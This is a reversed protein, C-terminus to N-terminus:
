PRDQVGACPGQRLPYEEARAQQARYDRPSLGHAAKFLRSFHAPDPYGWRAGIAAVPRAAFRYDLLDRRCHELRRERIWGSVTTGQAHFLKHLQRTSVHHAAAIQGPVLDAQGLHQEVYATIRLMLARHTSAADAPVCDLREALVTGLLDLVNDALRVGARTDVSDLVSAVQVLFPRVLAGLGAAGPVRTATLRAVQDEPLGLRERPFVLVLMSHTEEFAISYPRDTDYLAFDGPGLRAQRGDQALQAPGRLQLGVKYCGAPASTVLQLTRRALHAEARVEYLRLVGLDVGRLRGRFGGRAPGPASIELPVFATSLANQWFEFRQSAPQDLTRVVDPM